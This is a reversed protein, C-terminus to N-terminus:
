GLALLSERCHQLLELALVLLLIDM